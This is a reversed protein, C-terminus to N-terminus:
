GGAIDKIRFVSSSETFNVFILKYCKHGQYINYLVSRGGAAAGGGGARVQHLPVQDRLGPQAGDGHRAVLYLDPAVHVREAAAPGQQLAASVESVLAVEEELLPLIVLEAESVRPLDVDKM